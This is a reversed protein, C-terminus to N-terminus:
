KWFSRDLSTWESTSLALAVHIQNAEPTPLVSKWFTIEVEDDNQSVQCRRPKSCFDCAPARLHCASCGSCTCFRESSHGSRVNFKWKNCPVCIASDRLEGLYSGTDSRLKQGCTRGFHYGCEKDVCACHGPARELCPFCRNSIPRSACMSVDAGCEECRWTKACKNCFGHMGKKKVGRSPCKVGRADCHIHAADGAGCGPCQCWNDKDEFCEICVLDEATM